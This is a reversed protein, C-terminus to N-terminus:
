DSQANLAEPPWEGFLRWHLYDRPWQERRRPWDHSIARKTLNEPRLHRMATRLRRRERNWRKRYLRASKLM